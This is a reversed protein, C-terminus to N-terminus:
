YENNNLEKKIYATLCDCLSLPTDYELASLSIKIKKISLKFNLDCLFYASTKNGLYCGFIENALPYLIDSLESFSFEGFDTLHLRHSFSTYLTCGSIDSINFTIDVFDCPFM